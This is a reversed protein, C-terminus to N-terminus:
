LGPCADDFSTQVITLPGTDPVEFFTAIIVAGEEGAYATHVHGRGPDM